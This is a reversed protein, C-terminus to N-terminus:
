AAPSASSGPARPLLASAPERRETFLTVGDVGEEGTMQVEGDITAGDEVAIRRVRLDARVHGTAGIELKDATVSPGEITGEVVVGVAQVSGCVHGGARVRLLAGVTVDGTVTGAVDVAHDVCLRGTITAGAGIVTEFVADSFRRPRTSESMQGM